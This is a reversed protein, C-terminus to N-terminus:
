ALLPLLRRFELLSSDFGHMLLIPVTGRCPSSSQPAFHVYATSLATLGLQFPVEVTRRQITQLLAIAEADQIEAVSSPLFHVFM